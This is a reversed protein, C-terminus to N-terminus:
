MRKPTQPESFKLAASLDDAFADLKKKLRDLDLNFEAGPQKIEVQIEEALQRVWRRLTKKYLFRAFASTM